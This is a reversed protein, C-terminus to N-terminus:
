HGWHKKHPDSHHQKSKGRHSPEKKGWSSVGNDSYTDSISGSALSSKISSGASSLSIISNFIM